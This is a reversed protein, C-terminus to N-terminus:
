FVMQVLSVIVFVVIGIIAYVGICKLVEILFNEM